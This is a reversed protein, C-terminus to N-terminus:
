SGPGAERTEVWWEFGCANIAEGLGDPIGGLNECLAAEVDDGTADDDLGDWEQWDTTGRFSANSSASWGIRYEISM